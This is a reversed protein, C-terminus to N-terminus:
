PARPPSGRQPRILLIYFLAREGAYKAAERSREIGGLVVRGKPDCLQWEWRSRRRNIIVVEYM